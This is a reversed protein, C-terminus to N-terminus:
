RAEVEAAMAHLADGMKRAVEPWLYADYTEVGDADLGALQLWVMGPADDDDGVTWQGDQELGVTGM